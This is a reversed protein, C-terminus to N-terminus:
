IELRADSDLRTPKIVNLISKSQHGSVWKFSGCIFKAPVASESRQNRLWRWKCGFNSRMLMANQQDNNIYKWGFIPICLSIRYFLPAVFSRVSFLPGEPGMSYLNNQGSKINHSFKSLNMLDIEVPVCCLIIWRWMRGMKIQPFAIAILKFLKDQTWCSLCLKDRLHM